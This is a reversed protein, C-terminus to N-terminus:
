LFHVLGHINSPFHSGKALSFRVMKRFGARWSMVEGRVLLLKLSFFFPPPFVWLYAARCRVVLVKLFFSFDKM